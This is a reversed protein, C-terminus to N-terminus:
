PRVRIKDVVDRVGPASWAANIADEREIWSRVTGSLIVQGDVADITIKKADMEANRRLAAEIKMKLDAPLVKRTAVIIKNTVGRVGNLLRVADEAARKQYYWEVEGELTLWGKAVTVKVKEHPIAVNWELANVASHAIDVDDREGKLPLKVELDNAVGEVGMVRKVIKEAIMKEAYNSVYGTLGIIGDDVTVGIHRADISPDWELEELVDKRLEIDKEPVTLTTM